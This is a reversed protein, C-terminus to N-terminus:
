GQYPSQRPKGDLTQWSRAGTERDLTLICNADPYTVVDTAARTGVVFYTAPQDSRNELFHGLPTGAKFTACQGASFPTESHGEHLIVTGNLMFILEDENQHWHKLSSRSGPPLTETFAGFQTLGGMDSYDVYSYTGLLPSPKGQKPGDPPPPIIPM